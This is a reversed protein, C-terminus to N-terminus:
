DHYKARLAFFLEIRFICFSYHNMVICGDLSPMWQVPLGRKVPGGGTIGTTMGGDGADGDM